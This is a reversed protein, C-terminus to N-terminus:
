SAKELPLYEEPIQVTWIQQKGSAPFPKVLRRINSLVWCYPGETHQHDKIWDPVPRRGGLKVCDIVDALALVAGYVLDPFRDEDGPDLWHKSKGAHIALPGRHKTWWRRNEIRKQEYGEPLQETPTAILHAYPQCITLAPFEYNM